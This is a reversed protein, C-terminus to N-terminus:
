SNFEEIQGDLIRSLLDVAKEATIDDWDGVTLKYRDLGYLEMYRWWLSNHKAYFIMEGQEETFGLYDCALKHIFAPPLKRQTWDKELGPVVNASEEEDKLILAWGAICAVSDCEYSLSDQFEELSLDEVDRIGFFHGLNFRDSTLPERLLEILKQVKDVHISPNIKNVATLTAM